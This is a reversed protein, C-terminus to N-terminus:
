DNPEVLQRGLNRAGHMLRWLVIKDEEIRYFMLNKDFPTAVGFSRLGALKPHKFHRLRGLTPQRALRIFSKEVAAEFKLAIAEGAERLYWAFRAEYDAVFDPLREVSNM